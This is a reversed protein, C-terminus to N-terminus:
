SSAFTFDLANQFYDLWNWFPRLLLKTSHIHDIDALTASSLKRSDTHRLSHHFRVLPSIMDNNYIAKHRYTSIQVGSNRLILYFSRDILKVSCDTGRYLTYPRRCLKVTPKIGNFQGHSSKATPLRSFLFIYKCVSLIRCTAPLVPSTRWDTWVTVFMPYNIIINESPTRNNYDYKTYYLIINHNFIVSDGINIQLVCVVRAWSQQLGDPQDTKNNNKLCVYSRIYETMLRKANRTLKIIVYIRKTKLKVLCM